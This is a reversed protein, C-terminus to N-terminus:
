IFFKFEVRDDYDDIDLGTLKQRKGRGRSSCRKRCVDLVDNRNYYIIYPSTYSDFDTIAQGFLLDTDYRFVDQSGPHQTRAAKPVYFSSYHRYFILRYGDGEDKLDFTVKGKGYIRDLKEQVSTKTYSIPSISMDFVFGAITINKKIM